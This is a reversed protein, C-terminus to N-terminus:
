YQLSAFYQTEVHKYSLHIKFLIRHLPLRFARDSLSTSTVNAQDEIDNRSREVVPNPKISM